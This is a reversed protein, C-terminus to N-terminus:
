EVPKLVGTEMLLPILYKNKIKGTMLNVAEEQFYKKAEDRKMSKKEMFWNVYWEEVLYYPIAGFDIEDQVTECIQDVTYVEDVFRQYMGDKIRSFIMKDLLFLLPSDAVSADAEAAHNQELGFTHGYIALMQNYVHIDEIDLAKGKAEQAEKLALLFRHFVQERKQRLVQLIKNQLTGEEFDILSQYRGDIERFYGSGCYYGAFGLAAMTDHVSIYAKPDDKQRKLNEIIAKAKTELIRYHKEEKPEGKLIKRNVIRHVFEQIGSNLYSKVADMTEQDRESKSRHHDLNALCERFEELTLHYTGKGIEGKKLKEIFKEDHAAAKIIYTENWEIFDILANTEEALNVESYKFEKKYKLHNEDICVSWKRVPDGTTEHHNLQVIPMRLRQNQLKKLVLGTLEVTALTKEFINGTALRSFISVYTLLAYFRSRLPFPLVGKQCLFELGIISAMAVGTYLGGTVGLGISTAFISIQFVTGINDHILYVSRRLWFHQDMKHHIHEFCSKAIGLIKHTRPYENPNLNETLNKLKSAAYQADISSSLILPPLFLQKFDRNVLLGLHNQNWPLVSLAQLAYYLVFGQIFAAQTANAGARVTEDERRYHVFHIAASVGTSFM